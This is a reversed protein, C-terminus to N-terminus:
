GHPAGSSVRTDWSLLPRVVGAFSDPYMGRAVGELRDVERVFFSLARQAEFHWRAQLGPSACAITVHVVGGNLLNGPIWATTVYRGAPRIRTMDDPATYVAEFLATGREDELRVLPLLPSEAALVDYTVEIGVRQDIDVAAVTEGGDTVVRASVLRALGDGPVDRDGDAVWAPRHAPWAPASCVLAAFAAGVQEPEDPTAAKTYAAIVEEAPGDALLRGRELWIARTCLRTVADLSHSVFLITRGERALQEVQRLCKRQFALDGVALVEDLLLIEADLHAAVAFALRMTMGSSYFRIPTDIFAGIEAFDAIAEFRENVEARSLGHLAGNLYVNQRGTLTPHFGTGIGLLATVRGDIEIEGETPETVRSLLTLLTSKGAGNHGIVAVREGRPIEFSLDRVAWYSSLRETSAARGRLWDGVRRVLAQQVTDGAVVDLDYRKGLGRAAIVIDGM